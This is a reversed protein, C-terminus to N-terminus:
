RGILEDVTVGLANALKIVVELTPKNKLGTELKYLYSITLGTRKHLETRTLGKQLRIIKLKDL